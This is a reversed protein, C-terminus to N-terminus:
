AEQGPNTEAYERGDLSHHIHIWGDSGDARQCPEITPGCVCGGQGIDHIIHDAVPIVHATNSTPLRLAAWLNSNPM